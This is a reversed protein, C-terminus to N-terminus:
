GLLVNLVEDGGLILQPTFVPDVLHYSQEAGDSRVSKSNLVVTRELDLALVCLDLYDCCVCALDPCLQYSQEDVAVLGGRYYVINSVIGAFYTWADLGIPEFAAPHVGAVIM